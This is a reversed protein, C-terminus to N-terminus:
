LEGFIFYLFIKFLYLGIGSPSTTGVLIYAVSWIIVLSPGYLLELKYKLFVEGEVWGWALICELCPTLRLLLVILIMFSCFSFKFCNREFDLALFSFGKFGFVANLDSAYGLFFIIKSVVWFLIVVLVLDLVVIAVVLVVVVVVVVIVLVVVVLLVVVLVVDVVAVVVVVVVVVVLLLVVIVVVNVVAIVVVFAIIELVPVDDVGDKVDENPEEVFIGNEIVFVLSYKFVVEVVGDSISLIFFMTYWVFSALGM